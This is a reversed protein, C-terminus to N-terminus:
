FSSPISCGLGDNIGIRQEISGSKRPLSAKQFVEPLFDPKADAVLLL